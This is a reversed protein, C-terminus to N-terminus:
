YIVPNWNRGTFCQPYPSPNPETTTAATTTDSETNRYPCNTNCKDLSPYLSDCDSCQPCEATCCEKNGGDACCVDCRNPCRPKCLSPDVHGQYCGMCEVCEMRCCEAKSNEDCCGPECDAFTEIKNPIRVCKGEIFVGNFDEKQTVDYMFGEGCSINYLVTGEACVFYENCNRLNPARAIYHKKLVPDFTRACTDINCDVLKADKCRSEGKDFSQGEPCIMNIEVGNYCGFYEDCYPSDPKPFLKGTDDAGCLKCKCEPPFLNIEAETLCQDYPACKKHYTNEPCELTARYGRFCAFFERCNKEDHSPLYGTGDPLLNCLPHNAQGKALGFFSVM